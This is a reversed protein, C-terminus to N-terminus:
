SRYRESLRPMRPPPIMNTPAPDTPHLPVEHATEAAFHGRSVEVPPSYASLQGVPFILNPPSRIFQGPAAVRAPGPHSADRNTLSIATDTPNNSVIWLVDGFRGFLEPVADLVTEGSILCGDLDSLVAACGALRTSLVDKIGIAQSM